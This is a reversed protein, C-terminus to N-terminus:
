SWVRHERPEFYTHVYRTLGVVSDGNNLAQYVCESATLGSAGFVAITKMCLASNSSPVGWKQQSARNGVFSSTFADSSVALGAAIVTSFLFRVM